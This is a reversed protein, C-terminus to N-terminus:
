SQKLITSQLRVNLSDVNVFDDGFSRRGLTNTAQTQLGAPSEARLRNYSFTFLHNQNIQWDIKPLFLTQDQRRPTEGTLSNIFALSSDIQANTLGKGLLTTRNVTSLYNLNPGFVSLGPFNRKQQDYSFFFFLRDKV